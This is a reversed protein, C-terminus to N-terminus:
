SSTKTYLEKVVKKEAKSMKKSLIDLLERRPGDKIADPPEKLWGKIGLFTNFLVSKMKIGYRLAFGFAVMLLGGGVYGLIPVGIRFEKEQPKSAIVEIKLIWLNQRKVFSAREGQHEEIIDKALSVEGFDGPPPVPIPSTPAGLDASVEKAAIAVQAVGNSEAPAGESFIKSFWEASFAALQKRFELHEQTRKPPEPVNSKGKTRIRLIDTSCGLLTLIILIPILRKM